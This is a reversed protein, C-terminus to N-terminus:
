RSRAIAEPLKEGLGIARRSWEGSVHIYGEKCPCDCKNVKNHSLINHLLLKKDTDIGFTIRGVTYVLYTYLVLDTYIDHVTQSCADHLGRQRSRM